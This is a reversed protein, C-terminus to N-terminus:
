FKKTLCIPKYLPNKSMIVAGVKRGLYDKLCWNQELLTVIEELDCLVVYKQSLAERCIEIASQKFGSNSILIGGHYKSAFLRSLHHSINEINLPNNAWIMEVLFTRQDFVIGGKVLESIGSESIAIVEFPDIIVIDNVTFIRILVDELLKKGKITQNDSLCILFFLDDKITNIEALLRQKEKLTNRYVDPINQTKQESPSVNVHPQEVHENDSYKERTNRKSRSSNSRYTTETRKTEKEAKLIFTFIGFIIGIGTVVIWIIFVKEKPFYFLSIVLLAVAIIGMAIAVTSMTDESLSLLKKDRFRIEGLGYLLGHVLLGVIIFIALAGLVVAPVIVM